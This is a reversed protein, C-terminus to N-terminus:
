SSEGIRNQPLAFRHSVRRQCSDTYVAGIRKRHGYPSIVIAASRVIGRQLAMSSESAQQPQFPGCRTLRSVELIPTGLVYSHFLVSGDRGAVDIM